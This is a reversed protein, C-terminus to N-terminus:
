SESVPRLRTKKGGACGVLAGVVVAVIYYLGYLVQLRASGEVPTRNCTFVYEGKRWKQVQPRCRYIRPRKRNKHEQVPGDFVPPEQLAQMSGANTQVSAASTARQFLASRESGELHRVCLTEVRSVVEKRRGRGASLARLKHRPIGM